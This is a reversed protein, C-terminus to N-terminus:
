VISPMVNSNRQRLKRIPIWQQKTCYADSSAYRATIRAACGKECWAVVRNLTLRNKKLCLKPKPQPRPFEMTWWRARRSFAYVEASTTNKAYRVRQAASARQFCTGPVQYKTYLIYQFCFSSQNTINMSVFLKFDSKHTRPHAVEWAEVKPESEAGKLSIKLWIM